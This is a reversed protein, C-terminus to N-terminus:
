FFFVCVISTATFVPLTENMILAESEQCRVHTGIPIEDRALISIIGTTSEFVRAEFRPNIRENEMRLRTSRVLHRMMTGGDRFSLKM